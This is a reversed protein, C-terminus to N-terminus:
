LFYACMGQVTAKAGAAALLGMSGAMFYQFTKNSTEGRKSMYNSFNPIKTTPNDEKRKFPSDFAPTRDPAGSSEDVASAKGRRQQQFQQNPLSALCQAGSPLHRPSYSAQHLRIFSRSPTSLPPMTKPLFLTLATSQYINEVSLELPMTYHLASIRKPFGKCM